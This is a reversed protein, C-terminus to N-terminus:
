RKVADRIQDLTKLGLFDFKILGISEASKMDYQV